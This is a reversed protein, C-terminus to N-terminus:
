AFRLPIPSESLRSAVIKAYTESTEFGLWRRNLRDASVATTGSGMFPDLVLDGEDSSLGICRGPLALSFQAGHGGRGSSTPLLWSDSVKGPESATKGGLEVPLDHYANKHFKPTRQVSLHIVTEINRSVRSQQPEPMSATKVWTIMSKVFYGLRSAREAIRSPILSQEGDKLYAHGASYRRAKHDHWKKEDRGQMARLAEAANGRIQTRTSYTDGLNWWVSAEPKLVPLLKYLIEATHRLYGEPTQEFGFPCIEGDAWKTPVMDEYIRMAWYPPSTVVTQVTNFSLKDLMLLADGVHLGNLDSRASLVNKQEVLYPLVRSRPLFTESFADQELLELVDKLGIQRRSGVVRKIFSTSMGVLPAVEALDFLIGSHVEALRYSDRMSSVQTYPKIDRVEYM